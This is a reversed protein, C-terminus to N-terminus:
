VWSKKQAFWYHIVLEGDTGETYVESDDHVVSKPIWVEPDDSVDEFFPAEVRIAAGTEGVCVADAITFTEDSPM